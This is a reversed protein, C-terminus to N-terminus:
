QLKKFSEGRGGGFNELKKKKKRKGTKIYKAFTFVICHEGIGKKPKQKLCITCRSSPKRRGPLKDGGGGGPDPLPSTLSRHFSVKPLFFQKPDTYYVCNGLEKVEM